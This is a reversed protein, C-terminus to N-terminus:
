VIKQPFIEYIIIQVWIIHLYGISLVVHLAYSIARAAGHKLLIHGKSVSISFFPVWM